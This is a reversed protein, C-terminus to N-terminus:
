ALLWGSFHGLGGGMYYDSSYTTQDRYIYLQVYDNAALTLICSAVMQQHYNTGISYCYANGRGTVLSGNKIWGWEGNTVSSASNSRYLVSAQFEYIGAIPATFRGNSTNYRSNNNSITASFTVAGISQRIGGEYAWAAPVQNFNVYGNADQTIGTSGTNAITTAGTITTNGLVVPM